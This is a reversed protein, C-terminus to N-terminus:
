CSNNGLKRTPNHFTNNMACVGKMLEQKLNERLAIKGKAEQALSVQLEQMQRELIEIREEYLNKLKTCTTQMETEWLLNQHHHKNQRSWLRWESLIRRQLSRQKLYLISLVLHKKAKRQQTYQKWAAFIAMSVQVQKEHKKRFNCMNAMRIMVTKYKQLYQDRKNISDQMKENKMRYEAIISDKEQETKQMKQSHKKGLHLKADTLQQLIDKKLSFAVHTITENMKEAFQDMDDDGQGNKTESDDISPIIADHSAVIINNQQEM